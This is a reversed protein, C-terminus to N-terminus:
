FSFIRVKLREMLLDMDRANVEVVRNVVGEIVFIDGKVCVLLFLLMLLLFGGAEVM